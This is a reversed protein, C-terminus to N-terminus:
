LQLGQLFYLKLPFLPRSFDTWQCLLSCLFQRDQRTRSRPGCLEQLEYDPGGGAWPPAPLCCTFLYAYFSDWQALGWLGQCFCLCTDSVPCVRRGLIGGSVMVPGPRWSAISDLCGKLRSPGLGCGHKLASIRLPHHQFWNCWCWRSSALFAFQWAWQIPVRPIFGQFRRKVLEGPSKSASLKLLKHGNKRELDVVLVFM